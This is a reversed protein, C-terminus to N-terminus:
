LLSSIENWNYWNESDILESHEFFVGVWMKKWIEM